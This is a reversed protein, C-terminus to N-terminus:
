AAASAFDSSTMSFRYNKKMIDYRTKGTVSDVAHKHTPYWTGLGQYESNLRKALFLPIMYEKGDELTYTYECGEFPRATLIVTGGVPEYCRFTGRVMQTDRDRVYEMAARRQEMNLTRGYSKKEEGQLSELKRVIESANITEKAM